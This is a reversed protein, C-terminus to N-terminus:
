QLVCVWTQACIAVLAAPEGQPADMAFPVNVPQV